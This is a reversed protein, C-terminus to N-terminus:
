PAAGACRVARIGRGAALASGAVAVLVRRHLAPSRGRRCPVLSCPVRRRAIWHGDTARTLSIRKKYEPEQLHSTLVRVKGGGKPYFGRKLVEFKMDVECGTSYRVWSESIVPWLVYRLYDITPAFPM